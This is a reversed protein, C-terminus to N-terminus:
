PWYPWFPWFDWLLAMDELEVRLSLHSLRSLDGLGLTKVKATEEEQCGRPRGKALM